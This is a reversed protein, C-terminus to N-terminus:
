KILDVLDWAINYVDSLGGSHGMEYAKSILLDRKPNNTIELEEALDDFFKQELASYKAAYEKKAATFAEEDVVKEVVAGSMTIKNYKDPAALYEEATATEICKGAKYWYHKTFHSRAPYTDTMRYDAFNM